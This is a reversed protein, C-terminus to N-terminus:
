WPCIEDVDAMSLFMGVCVCVCTSMVAHLALYLLPNFFCCLLEPVCQKTVNVHM